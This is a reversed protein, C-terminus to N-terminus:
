KNGKIKFWTEACNKHATGLDEKCSCGLEIPVGFEESGDIEELLSLHCIRCIREVKGLHVKIEVADPGEVAVSLESASSARRSSWGGAGGAGGAFSFGDISGGTASYFQSYSSYTSHDDDEEEADSFCVSGEEEEYEGAAANNTRRRHQAGSELDIHSHSRFIETTAMLRVHWAEPFESILCFLDM